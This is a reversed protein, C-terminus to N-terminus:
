LRHRLLSVDGHWGVRCLRCVPQFHVIVPLSLFMPGDVAGGEGTEFCFQFEASKEGGGRGWEKKRKKKGKRNKSM